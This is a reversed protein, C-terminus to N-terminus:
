VTFYQEKVESQSYMYIIGRLTNESFAESVMVKVCDIM